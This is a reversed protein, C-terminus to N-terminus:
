LRTLRLAQGERQVRGTAAVDLVLFHGLRDAPLQLLDAHLRRDDRVLPAAIDALPRLAQRRHVHEPPCRGPVGVPDEIGQEAGALAECAPVVRVEVTEDLGAARREVGRLALPNVALRAPEGVVLRRPQEQPVAHVDVPDALRDGVPLRRGVLRGGGHHKAGDLLLLAGPRAMAVVPWASIAPPPMAPSTAAAASACRPHDTRTWSRASWMRAYPAAM